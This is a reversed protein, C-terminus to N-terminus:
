DKQMLQDIRLVIQKLRKVEDPAFEKYCETEPNLSLYVGDNIGTIIEKGSLTVYDMENYHDGAWNVLRDHTDFIVMFYHDEIKAFLPIFPEEESIIKQENKKVPVYLQTKLLALYFQNAEEQKGVSKFAAQILQDLETM